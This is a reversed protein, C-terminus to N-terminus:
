KIKNNPHGDERGCVPCGPNKVTKVVEYYHNLLDALLLGGRLVSKLGLLYKVCEAAMVMGIFGAAPGFVGDRALQQRQKEPPLCPFLCNFCPGTAAHFVSAQGEFEYVSGYFYCIGAAVCAENLLVRTEFNDSCDMVADFGRVLAPANEGGVRQVSYETKILSNKKLLHKSAAVAKLRGIDGEDFIVQRHLNSLEVKDSDVIRIRGVGAGALYMLAPSGLGGTGIVLVSSRALKIQGKIGIEALM